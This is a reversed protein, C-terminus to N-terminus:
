REWVESQLKKEAAEEHALIKSRLPCLLGRANVTLALGPRITDDFVVYGCVDFLKHVSALADENPAAFCRASSKILPLLTESVGRGETSGHQQFLLYDKRGLLRDMMFSDLCTKKASLGVVYEEFVEFSFGREELKRLLLRSRAATLSPANKRWGCLIFFYGGFIEALFELLCSIGIRLGEYDNFSFSVRASGPTANGGLNLADTEPDYSYIWNSEVGTDDVNFRLM